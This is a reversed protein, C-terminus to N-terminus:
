TEEQLLNAVIAVVDVALERSERSSLETRQEIEEAVADTAEELSDYTPNVSM